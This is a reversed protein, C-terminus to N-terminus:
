KKSKKKPAPNRRMFISTGFGAGGGVNTAVDASKFAGPTASVAGSTTCEAMQAGTRGKIKEIEREKESIVYDMLNVIMGKSQSLKEQVWEPLDEDDGIANKLHTLVRLMSHIQNKAYSGEMGYEDSDGHNSPHVDQLNTDKIRNLPDEKLFETSKM